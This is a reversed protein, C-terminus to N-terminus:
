VSSAGVDLENLGTRDTHSSRPPDINFSALLAGIFVFPELRLSCHLANPLL